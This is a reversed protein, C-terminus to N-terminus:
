GVLVALANVLVHAVIAPVLSGSGEVLGAFVLGVPLVPLWAGPATGHVLAFLLASGTVALPVGWRDRLLRYAFGRFFLEEGAAVPLTVAVLVLVLEPLTGLRELLTEVPHPPVAHGGAELAASALWALVAAAAGAGAGAAWWRRGVPRLGLARWSGPFGLRGFLLAVGALLGDDVLQVWLFTWADTEARDLVDAGVLSVFAFLFVAYLGGGAVLLWLSPRAPPGAPGDVAPAALQTGDPAGPDPPTLGAASGEGGAAALAQESCEPAM